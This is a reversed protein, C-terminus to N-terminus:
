TISDRPPAPPCAEVPTRPRPLRTEIVEREVPERGRAVTRREVTEREVSAPERYSAFTAVPAPATDPASAVPEPEVYRAGYTESEVI